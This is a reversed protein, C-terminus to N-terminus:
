TEKTYFKHMSLGSRFTKTVNNSPGDDAYVDDIFSITIGAGVTVLLCNVM